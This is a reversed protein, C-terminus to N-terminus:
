HRPNMRANLKLRKTRVRTWFHGTRILTQILSESGEWIEDYALLIKQAPTMVGADDASRRSKKPLEILGDQGDTMEVDLFYVQGSVSSTYQSTCTLNSRITTFPSLNSGSQLVMPVAALDTLAVHEALQSVMQRSYSDFYASSGKWFAHIVRLVAELAGRRIGEAYMAFNDCTLLKLLSRMYAKDLVELKEHSGDDRVSGMVRDIIYEIVGANVCEVAALDGRSLVIEVLLMNVTPVLSKDGGQRMIYQILVCVLNYVSVRAAGETAFIM